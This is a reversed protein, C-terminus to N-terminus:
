RRFIKQKELYSKLEEGQFMPDVLACGETVRGVLNGYYIIVGNEIHIPKM